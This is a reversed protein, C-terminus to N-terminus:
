TINSKSEKLSVISKRRVDKHSDLIYIPTVDGERRSKVNRKKWEDANEWLKKLTPNKMNIGAKDLPQWSVRDPNM